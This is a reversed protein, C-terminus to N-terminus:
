SAYKRNRIFLYIGSFIYLLVLPAIINILQWQIRNEGTKQADLPRLKVEKGHTEALGSKDAMYEVCSMFFERNAFDYQEIYNRGLVDPKGTKDVNNKIMDGDGIMIQKAEVGSEIFGRDQYGFGMGHLQKATPKLSKFASSFKGELLVAVPLNPKNYQEDTPAYKENV